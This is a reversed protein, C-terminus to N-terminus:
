LPVAERMIRARFRDRMGGESVVDVKVGPLEQLEEILM